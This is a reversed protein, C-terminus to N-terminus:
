KVKQFYTTPMSRVWHMPIGFARAFVNFTNIHLILSDISLRIHHIHECIVCEDISFKQLIRMPLVTLAM